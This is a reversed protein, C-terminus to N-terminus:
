VTAVNVTFPKTSNLSDVRGLLFELQRFAASPQYQPIMHGSLEVTVWTLGRETITKGLIGAAALTSDSYDKHAPIVFDVTPASQFGQLGGWTTNQLALLTGEAILVFDLLGHAVVVNQTRDIVSGLVTVASPLSNDGDPFVDEDTCSSWSIHPANIATQVDTRNFYIQAGEPLYDFSGPFGLVDWLVPCTTAVQYIDFCPNKVNVSDYINDYLESCTENDVGPLDDPGPLLGPPPYTLYKDRFDAFGCEVDLARYTALDDSDLPFLSSSAIYPVYMGAYSEGTIYVKRNQLDFTDVFNKWFAKFQEAIDEENQATPTGPSFGTGVPQEIWVVNTLRHWSYPNEVPKYTGYQWTFPGNEGGNLWILIEDDVAKDKNTSPYFWFYFEDTTSNGLPILGAYSEGVDFDVDPIATGDVVFKKTKDTLYHWSSNTTKDTYEPTSRPVAPARQRQGLRDAVHGVHQLSRRATVASASLALSSLLGSLKM